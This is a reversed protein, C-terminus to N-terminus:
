IMSIPFGLDLTKEGFISQKVKWLFNSNTKCQCCSLCPNEINLVKKQIFYKELCQKHFLCGCQDCISLAKSDCNSFSELCIGCSFDGGSDACQVVFHIFLYHELLRFVNKTFQGEAQNHPFIEDETFRYSDRKSDVYLHYHLNIFFYTLDHKRSCNEILLIYITKAFRVELKTFDGARNQKNIFERLAVQFTANNDFKNYCSKAVKAAFLGAANMWLDACCDRLSDYSLYRSRESSIITANFRDYNPNYNYVVPSHKINKILDLLGSHVSYCSLFLMGFLSNKKKFM